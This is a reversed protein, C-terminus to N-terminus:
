MIVSIACGKAVVASNADAINNLENPDAALDYLEVQPARIYKWKGDVLCRLPSWGFSTFPLDTQGYTPLSEIEEGRVARALNRGSRPDGAGSGTLDLVTGFLDFTLAQVGPYTAM